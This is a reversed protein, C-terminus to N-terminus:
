DPALWANIPGVYKEVGQAYSSQLYPPGLYLIYNSVKDLDKYIANDTACSYLLAIGITESNKSAQVTIYEGLKVPEGFTHCQWGKDRLKKVIEDNMTSSLTAAKGLWGDDSSTPNFPLCKQIQLKNLLENKIVQLNLCAFVDNRFSETRKDPTPPFISLRSGSIAFCEIFALAQILGMARFFNSQNQWIQSKAHAFYHRNFGSINDYKDTDEYFSNQLWDGILEIIRIRENTVKLVDIQIFEDPIWDANDIHEKKINERAKAICHQVKDKLKLGKGHEGIITNLIDEIIPILSAIATVRMGSYFALISERIVPLHKAISISEPLVQVTIPIINSFDYITPFAQEFREQLVKKPLVKHDGIKLGVVEFGRNIQERNMYVPCFWDVKHWFDQSEKFPKINKTYLKIQELKERPFIATREPTELKIARINQNFGFTTEKIELVIIGQGLVIDKFEDLSIDALRNTHFLKNWIYHFKRELKHINM